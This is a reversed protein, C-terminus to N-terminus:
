GGGGGPADGGGSGGGTQGGGQGGGGAGGRARRGGQGGGGGPANGRDGGFAAQGRAMGFGGGEEMIKGALESGFLSTLETESWSRFEQFTQRMAQPDGGGNQMTGRLDEMRVRQTEYFNELQKTQGPNLGVRQATREARQQTQEMERKRREEEAKRAQEQRDEEIVAKIASKHQTAFALADQDIPAKEPEIAATRSSASRMEAVDQHIADLARELNEVKAALEAERSSPKQAMGSTQPKIDVQLAESAAVPANCSACRSAIWGSAAGVSGALLAVLVLPLPKM